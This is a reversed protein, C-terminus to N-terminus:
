ARTFSWCTQQSYTEGSQLTVSPFGPHNPADPWHQAELALGAHPGYPLGGHGAFPATALARGNYVQLGPETTAMRLMVGHRGTLTAVETLAGPAAALCFNHDYGESGDIVRGARLDFVGSVTRVEGTPLTQANVPLYHDAAIQLTHGFTDPTGDLNWYSHNALNMLTAAGTTATVTLTLTAAAVRFEAAIDRRGPFGDDGPDLGLTLRAHSPGADAVTWLRTHLGTAGGHLLTTGENAAFACIRGDILAQAGGIRNAVPGVLAGFYRMPGDYAELGDSGLTLSHAVGALRLDQLVAGYSLITATLDASGITLAHVKNGDKTTGFVRM